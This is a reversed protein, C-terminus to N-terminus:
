GADSAMLPCVAECDGKKALCEANTWTEHAKDHCERQTATANASSGAEHCRKGLAECDPGGKAPPSCSTLLLALFLPRM